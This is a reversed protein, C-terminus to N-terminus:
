SCVKDVRHNFYGVHDWTAIVVLRPIFRDAEMFIARIERQARDRDAQNTSERYWVRGTGRTDVDAWYPAILQREDASTGVLPFPEPVFAGVETVFSVLGNNNIQFSFFCILLYEKIELSGM